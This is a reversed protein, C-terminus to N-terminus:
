GKIMTAYTTFPITGDWLHIDHAWYYAIFGCSRAQALASAMMGTSTTNTYFTDLSAPLNLGPNEGAVPMGYQNAIRTIWRTASWADLAPSTLSQADDTSTCLDNGGSQDAVSSVYAIVNTKVPLNAYYLQWVAGVGTTGDNPLNSNEDTVLQDPRTGSGPTVAEYYGKFGLGSLTTMEWNTVNDLGGVYWTIWTTIQAPTLGKTGPKWKPDPNPTLGAPLGTGTLASPNFAYYTGNGPYLMEGDGDGASLRIAWFDTLPMYSAIKALYTAAAARDAASFILDDGPAVNGKQDIFTGDALNRVWSPPDELGLGLTVKMGAAQYAHLMSLQTNMYSTSFSGQKPEYAAWDFEFMAMGVGNAAETAATTTQTDLTGWIPATAAHAAAPALLLPVGIAAAALGAVASARGTRTGSLLAGAVAAFTKRLAV